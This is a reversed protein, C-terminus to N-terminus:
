PENSLHLGAAAPASRRWIERLAAELDGAFRAGDFLATAPLTARLSARLTALAPLDAAFEIAKRQYEAIDNAVWNSLGAATRSCRCL